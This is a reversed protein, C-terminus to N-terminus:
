LWDRFDMGMAVVGLVLLGLLAAAYERSTGPNTSAVLPIGWGPHWTFFAGFALAVVIGAVLM